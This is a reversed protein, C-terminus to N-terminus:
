QMPAYVESLHAFTIFQNLHSTKALKFKLLLNQGSKGLKSAKIQAFHM